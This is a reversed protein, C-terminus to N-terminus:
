ASGQLYNPSKQYRLNGKFLNLLFPGCTHISYTHLPHPPLGYIYCPPLKAIDLWSFMLFKLDMLARLAQPFFPLTNRLVVKHPFSM